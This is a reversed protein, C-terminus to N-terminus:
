RDRDGSYAHTDDEMNALDGRDAISAAATNDALYISENTPKDTTM